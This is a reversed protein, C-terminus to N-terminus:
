LLSFALFVTPIPIGNFDFHCLGKETFGCAQYFGSAQLSSYVFIDSFLPAPAMPRIHDWLMRGIGRRQAEPSVFLLKIENMDMGAVGLVQNECEYVAVYFLGARKLMTEATEQELM